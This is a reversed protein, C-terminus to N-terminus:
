PRSLSLVSKFRFARVHLSVIVDTLYDLSQAHSGAGIEVLPNVFCDTLCFM